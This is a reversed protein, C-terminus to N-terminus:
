VSYITPLTLHTYSVAEVGTGDISFVALGGGITSATNNSIQSSNLVSLNQCNTCNIGGGSGSASNFSVRSLNVILPSNTFIGGGVRASNNLVDSSNIIVSANNGVSLIGGGLTESENSLIVSSDITASSTENVYMGAGGHNAIFSTTENLSVRSNTLTLVTNNLYM